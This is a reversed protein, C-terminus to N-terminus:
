AIFDEIIGGWGTAGVGADDAAASENDGTCHEARHGTVWSLQSLLNEHWVFNVGIPTVGIDVVDVGAGIVVVIYYDSVFGVLVM